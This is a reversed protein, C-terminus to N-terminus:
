PSIVVGLYGSRGATAYGLTDEYEEDFLNEVRGTLAVLPSLRWTAALRAVTYAEATTVSFTLPDLDDREGVYFGALVLELGGHFLRESLELSGKHRPRRLLQSGEVLGFTAPTGEAETDTYTYSALMGLTASPRARVYREAGATRARDVNFNLFSGSGEDFVAVILDEIRNGFLTVGFLLNGDLLGQDVGLDFGVSREPELEPGFLANADLELLSPAKFGTGVSARLTTASEFAYGGTARYTPETGFESHRDVRLGLTAFGHAGLRLSDEAYGALNSADADFTEFHAQEDQHELGAILTHVGNVAFDAQWSLTRLEGRVRSGFEAQTDRDHRALSAGFRQNFRGDLLRLRPQVLFVEQRGDTLQGEETSFGDFEVRDDTVRVVADLGFSETPDWGIRGSGTTNEYGDDEIGASSASFGDLEARSAAASWRLHETGGSGDVAGRLTGYSGGEASVRGKPPGAGRRTFIQIVGGIADAGYLTSQPGRLIEIREVDDTTLQPLIALRNPSAPDNLEVGDLLVLTHDSDAGRLFISANAGPGGSTRVDVGPVDRLADVVFRYQRREIEERTIVSVTSGVRDAPQEIRSATVVVKEELTTEDPAEENTQAAVLPAFTLLSICVCARLRADIARASM